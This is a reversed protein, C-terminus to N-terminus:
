FFDVCQIKPHQVFERELVFFGVQAKQPSATLMKNSNETLHSCIKASVQM